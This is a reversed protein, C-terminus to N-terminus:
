KTQLTMNPAFGGSYRFSASQQSSASGQSFQGTVPESDDSMFNSRPLPMKKEKRSMKERRSMRSGKSSAKSSALSNDGGHMLQAKPGVLTELQKVVEHMSPRELATDEVCVLAINMFTELEEELSEALAPDLIEKVGDMGNKDFRNRVDRVIHGGRYIPPKATIIELLVVGFSYVDSKPSMVSTMYYEPDLYGMTGKITPKLKGTKDDPVLVSLGFDAVKANMRKDLLINCSKVDRHIIPPDANDHLYALGRAAGLAILLRRDWDLPQDSMSGRLWDTLTGNPVYEYVLVQEGEEYCFGVLAVLNNHHVRSLLEIENKFEAAGQKSGEQARKVAVIIGTGAQIGKYVKGYGGEGLENEESFNNTMRKIDDFNFWNAGKLQPASAGEINQWAAFPNKKRETQAKRRMRLALFILFGVIVAVAGAGVAIGIIAFKSLGSAVVYVVGQSNEIDKVLEPKFPSTYKIKQNTFSRTLWDQTTFDMVEGSLPFFFLRVEVRLQSGNFAADRVWLQDAQFKVPPVETASLNVLSHVTQDQLVGWLTENDITTFTPARVELTVILPYSCKCQLPNLTLRANGCFSTCNNNDALSSSWKTVVPTDTANCLSPDVKVLGGSSTCIPNGQLMIQANSVANSTTIINTIMNNQLSVYRLRPGINTPISLTGNLQNSQLYLGQLAPYTLIDDPLPGALNSNESRITQITNSSANLWTPFPQPDFPNNSFDVYELQNLANLTPLTGTLSNNALRIQLLGVQTTGNKVIKNLSAPVVGTLQNFHLSLIQLASLNGFSEPITGTFQNVELLLHICKHASNGIEPPISGEFLNDNLHYHEIVPWSDLGLGDPSTTSVPLPGSLSNYAVDFWKLKKLAGLASPIPGNLKNNNLALFTLNSLQGLSAPIQGTFRCKQLSLYGLSALNGLESPLEGWLNRNFSIDLNQLASLDGIDPPITGKLDRSVMYLSVVRGDKSCVIGEWNDGCPDSGTWMDTGGGWAQQLKQLVIVDNPNTSQAIARVGFCVLVFVVSLRWANVSRMCKVELRAGM